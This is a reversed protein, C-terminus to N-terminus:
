GAFSTFNGPSDPLDLSDRDRVRDRTRVVYDRDGFGGVHGRQTFQYHLFDLADAADVATKGRDNGVLLTASFRPDPRSIQM